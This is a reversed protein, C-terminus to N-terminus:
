KKLIRTEFKIAIRIDNHDQNWSGNSCFLCVINMYLYKQLENSCKNSHNNWLKSKLFYYSIYGCRILLILLLCYILTPQIKTNGNRSGVVINLCVKNKSGNCVNYSKLKKYYYPNFHGEGVLHLVNSLINISCWNLLTKFCFQTQEKKTVVM